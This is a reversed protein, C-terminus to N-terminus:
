RVDVRLALCPRGEEAPPVLARGSEGGRVRDLAIELAEPERADGDRTRELKLRLRHPAAPDLRRVRITEGPLALEAVGFERMRGSFRALEGSVADGPSADPAAECSEPLAAATLWVFSPRQLSGLPRFGQAVGAQPLAALLAAALWAGLRTGSRRM